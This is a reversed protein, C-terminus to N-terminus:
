SSGVRKQSKCCISPRGCRSSACFPSSPSSSSRRVAAVDAVVPRMMPRQMRRGPRRREIPKDSPSIIVPRIRVAGLGTRMHTAAKTTIKIKKKNKSFTAQATRITALHKNYVTIVNAICLFLFSAEIIFHFSRFKEM